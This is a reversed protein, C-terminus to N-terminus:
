VIAIGQRTAVWRGRVSGRIVLTCSGPSLARVACKSLDYQTFWLHGEPRSATNM